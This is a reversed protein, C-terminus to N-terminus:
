NRAGGRPDSQRRTASFRRRRRRLALHGPCRPPTPRPIPARPMLEPSRSPLLGAVAPRLRDGPRPGGRVVQRLRQGVLRQPQQRVLAALLDQRWNHKVGKADALEKIGAADLAKAFTHYYYYLGAKGLGPNEEVSYHMQCWKVAAKVRPDDPKVGAYIMSKLGAYTMSGYGRLGGNATNGAPSQGGAAPTYYFSGDPNKAAFPTTNDQSELNQCRSVFVLARKM